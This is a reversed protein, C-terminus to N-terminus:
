EYFKAESFQIYKNSGGITLNYVIRYYCNAWSKSGVKNITVDNNAVFSPTFSAVVDTPTEAAAGTDTSCVYVTMSNVTVDNATGHTIVIKSINPSMATTSYIARNVGDLNKGGIRWPTMYSNGTVSWTIGSIAVTAPSAYANHPASNGGTATPTLTYAPAVDKVATSMDVTFAAIKGSEFVKGSPFTFTRAYTAKNTTVLIDVAEGGLDVPACAFWIDDTTNTNIIMESSATSLPTVDGAYNSGDDEIYYYFSGVWKKSATLKISSVTEGSVMGLNSLSLKGYATVHTFSLDVSTPFSPSYTISKAALLLAGEDVSNALPTQNNKIVITWDKHSKTYSTFASAPSVAYFTYSGSDDSTLSATFKASAYGPNPTVTANVPTGGTNQLIKVTEDNATWLTPYSTGSPTTFATKTEISTAIFEVTVENNIPTDIDNKSCSIVLISACLTAFLIITKKM